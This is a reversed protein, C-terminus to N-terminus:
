LGAEGATTLHGGPIVSVHLLDEGANKMRLGQVIVAHEFARHGATSVVDDAAIPMQQLELRM